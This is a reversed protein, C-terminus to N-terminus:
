QRGYTDYLDLYYVVGHDTDLNYRKKLDWRQINFVRQLLDTQRVSHQFGVDQIERIAALHANTSNVMGALTDLKEGYPDRFLLVLFIAILAVTRVVELFDNTAPTFLGGNTEDESSSVSYTQGQELSVENDGEEPVDFGIQPM